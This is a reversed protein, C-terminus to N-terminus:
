RAPASRRSRRARTPRTPRGSRCRRRCRSRATSWIAPPTRARTPSRCPRTAPPAHDREGRDHQQVRGGRGPHVRRPEGVPHRAVAVLTAPVTGSATGSATAVVNYTISKVTVNGAADRATVTVTHPGVDGSPRPCRRATPSRTAATPRPAPSSPRTTTAPSRSRARRARRSSRATSRRPSRSRRRSRTPSATSCCGTAATAVPASPPRSTPTGARSASPSRRQRRQQRHRRPRRRELRGPRGLPLRRRRRAAPGQRHHTGVNVNTPTKSGYVVYAAGISEQPGVSNPAPALTPGSPRDWGPAGLSSTASATATSTPRPRWPGASRRGADQRRRHPLRGRAALRARPRRVARRGQARVGLRVHALRGPRPVARRHRARAQPRWRRRRLGAVLRGPGRRRRRHPLRRLRARRARRGRQLDQGQGRVHRRLLTNAWIASVAVDDKGDGTWDGAAVAWGAKSNGTEGNM